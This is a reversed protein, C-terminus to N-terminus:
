EAYRAHCLATARGDTLHNLAAIHSVLCAPLLPSATDVAGHRGAAAGASFPAARPLTTLFLVWEAGAPCAHSSSFLRARARSSCSRAERLSSTGAKMVEGSPGNLNLLAPPGPSLSGKLSPPSTSESLRRGSRGHPGSGGGGGGGGAPRSAKRDGVRAREAPAELLPAAEPPRPTISWRRRSESPPVLGISAGGTITCGWSCCACGAVGRVSLASFSCPCRLTSVALQATEGM